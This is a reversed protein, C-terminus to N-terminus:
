PGSRYVVEGDVVTMLIEAALLETPSAEIPDLNMVTMDAFYGVRLLGRQEEERAAHAAGYSFAAVAEAGSLRQEPLWGGEPHGSADQRTRAAYLGGIPNSPEVPFDSGFALQRTRQTLRRWAYAGRLRATGVREEAWRMDSTAHTPQMSAIVGLEDFRAWDAEAVIQAHEIRPRMAAFSPDRRMREEYVDLVIHNARDGIAHTAPQLGADVVEDVRAAFEDASMRLLGVEGSADSYPALLAAGRSGLAGDMMLKSGLVRLKRRQDRDAPRPYTARVEEGLGNNGALYAIVRMKLLGEEELEAFLEATGSGIGMDHVCVLGESLLREQALLLRRRETARDSGPIHTGVFGMATDILVGTPRGLENVIVRGGEITPVPDADLLGAQELAMANALAAHGDVRRVLVPHDAVARSLAEHDPFEAGPWLTQDWGRGTIWTGKPQREARAAIRAVVEEYSACGVLDVEELAAGLGGIHGHGDQLGPIATGGRLDVFGAGLATLQELRTVSPAERAALVMGTADDVYLAGVPEDFPDTYITGNTFITVGPGIREMPDISEGANKSDSPAACGVLSLLISGSVCRHLITKM